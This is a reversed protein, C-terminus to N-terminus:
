SIHVQASAGLSGERFVDDSVHSVANDFGKNDFSVGYEEIPNLVSVNDERM